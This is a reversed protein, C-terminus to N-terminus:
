VALSLLMHFLQRVHLTRPHPRSVIQPLCTPQSSQLKISLAPLRMMISLIGCAGGRCHGSHSPQSSSTSGSILRSCRFPMSTTERPAAAHALSSSHVANHTLSLTHHCFGKAAPPVACDRIRPPSSYVGRRPNDSHCGRDDPGASGALQGRRACAVRQRSSAEGHKDGRELNKARSKESSLDLREAM